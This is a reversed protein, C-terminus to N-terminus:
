KILKKEWYNVFNKVTKDDEKELNLINERVNDITNEAWKLDDWGYAVGAMQLPNELRYQLPTKNKDPNLIIVKCGCLAAATTIYSKSDFTILYEFENFKQALEKFDGDFMFTTLDTAGFNKLFDHGWEPTFKHKIYCFGKREKKLNYYTDLKYDLITLKEQITNEPVLFSGYNYIKEDKGYTSWTAEDYDHLIWRCTNLTGFPNEFTVQTYVCVTNFQNYSFGEWVFKSWWGNDQPIRKTPIIDINEHKYFPENFVYINHGYEALKYALKHVAFSAGKNEFGISCLTDVIFTLKGPNNKLLM